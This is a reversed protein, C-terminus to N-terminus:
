ATLWYGLRIPRQSDTRDGRARRSRDRDVQPNEQPTEHELEKRPNSLESALRALRNCYAEYGARSHDSSQFAVCREYVWRATQADAVSEITDALEKAQKSVPPPGFLRALRDNTVRNVCFNLAIGVLLAAAVAWAAWRTWPSAPETKLESAMASLVRPRIDSAPVRPTLRILLREVDDHNM